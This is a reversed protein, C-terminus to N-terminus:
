YLIITFYLNFNIKLLMIKQPTWGSDREQFESLDTLLKEYVNKAYFNTRKIFQM